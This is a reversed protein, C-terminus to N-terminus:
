LFESVRLLILEFSDVDLCMAALNEFSLSFRSFLLFFNFSMVHLLDVFLNVASKDSDM